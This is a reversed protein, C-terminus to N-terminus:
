IKFCPNQHMMPLTTSLVNLKSCKQPPLKQETSKTSQFVGEM